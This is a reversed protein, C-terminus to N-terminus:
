VGQCCNCLIIFVLKCFQHLHNRIHAELLIGALGPHLKPTLTFGSSRMMHAVRWTDKTDMCMSRTGSPSVWWTIMSMIFPTISTDIRTEWLFIDHTEWNTNRQSIHTINGFCTEWVYVILNKLLCMYLDKICKNRPFMTLFIYCIELPFLISVSEMKEVQKM